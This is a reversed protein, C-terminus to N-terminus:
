WLTNNRAVSRLAIGVWTAAKSLIFVSSSTSRSTSRHHHLPRSPSCCGSTTAGAYMQTEKEKEPGDRVCIILHFADFQHFPYFTCCFPRRNKFIGKAETGNGWGSGGVKSKTSDAWPIKALNSSLNNRFAIPSRFDWNGVAHVTSSNRVNEFILVNEFNNTPFQLNICICKKFHVTGQYLSIIFLSNILLKSWSM